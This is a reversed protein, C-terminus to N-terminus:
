ADGTQSGVFFSEDESFLFLCRCIQSFFMLFQVLCSGGLISCFFAAFFGGFLIELAEDM